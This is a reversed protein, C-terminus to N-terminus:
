YQNNHKNILHPDLLNNHLNLTRLRIKRQKKKTRCFKLEVAAKSRCNQLNWDTQYQHVIFLCGFCCEVNKDPHYQIAQHIMVLCHSGPHQHFVDRWNSVPIKALLYKKRPYREQHYKEPIESIPLEGIPIESM